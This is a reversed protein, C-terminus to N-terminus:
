FLELDDSEEEKAGPEAGEEGLYKNHILRESAVTYFSEIEKLSEKAEKSDRRQEGTRLRSDVDNLKVIVENIVKEFLDYYDVKNIAGEIKSLVDENLSNNQNLVDDLKASEVDLQDLIQTIKVMLRIQEQESISGLGIDSLPEKLKDNLNCLEGLRTVVDKRNVMLDEALNYILYIIGLVKPNEGKLALDKGSKLLKEKELHVMPGAVKDKLITRIRKIVDSVLLLDSNVLTIKNSDLMVIGQDLKEKIRNLLTIERNREDSSFENSIRSIANTDDAISRFNHTIVKLANQYEKSVLILQEAQLAVIDAIHDADEEAQESKESPAADKLLNIIKLHSQQIHEIKQRIIDHYQLHTIINGISDSSHVSKEKLMPLYQESQHNKDLFTRYISRIDDSLDVINKSSDHNDTRGAALLGSLVLKLQDIENIATAIWPLIKETIEYWQQINSKETLDSDEYSTVLRYNTILYKLTILNQNLNRVDMLLYSIVNGVENLNAVGKRNESEALVRYDRIGTYLNDLENILNNQEDGVIADFIKSSNDSIIRIKEYYDKLYGNLQLFVESSHEHLESIRGDISFFTDVLEKKNLKKNKEGKM